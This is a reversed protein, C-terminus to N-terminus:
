GGSRKTLPFKHYEGIYCDVELAKLYAEWEKKHKLFSIGTLEKIKGMCDEQRYIEMLGKTGIKEDLYKVFSGCFGYFAARAYQSKFNYDRKVDTFKFEDLFYNLKQYKLGAYRDVPIRGNPFCPFGGLKENLYVALGEILWINNDSGPVAALHVIEHLYPSKKEKMGSLVVEEDTSYSVFDGSKVYFEVPKGILVGLYEETSEIGEELLKAIKEAEQGKEIYGTEFYVKARKTSLLHYNMTKM